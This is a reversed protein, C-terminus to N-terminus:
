DGQINDSLPIVQLILGTKGIVRVTQGNALTVKAQARWLAGQLQVWTEEPTVEMVQALAGIVRDPSHERSLRRTKLVIGTMFALLVASFIGLTVLAAVPMGYGPAQTDMLLLGGSVFAVVGGVGLAGISPVFAEAVMLGLGLLILALGVYNVPLLQLAYLGLLLCITGAAGALGFGPTLFELVIGYFGIVLLLLAINPNTLISLVKTRWDPLVEVIPAQATQLPQSTSTGSITRGDIQSLLAPLDPAIYEIVNQTMAEEASLSAAQRVAREAWEANRGRLQALGRIYAAADNVQKQSSSADQVARAEDQDKAAEQASKGKEMQSNRGLAVPTAAGLNTGPAMAAVHSAYLIYTGASALRAGSPAAYTAVPIPSALISQIITRMASDLDGPTDMQIVVLQSGRAAADEIGRVLYDANAPGIAAAIRLLTVSKVSSASAKTQAAHAVDFLAVSLVALVVLVPLGVLRRISHFFRFSAQPLSLAKGAWSPGTQLAKSRQSVALGPCLPFM